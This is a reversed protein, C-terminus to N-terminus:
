TPFQSSIFPVAGKASTRKGVKRKGAEMGDWEPATSTARGRSENGTVDSLAEISGLANELDFAIAAVAFFLTRCEINEHVM